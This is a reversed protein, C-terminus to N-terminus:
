EPQPFFLLIVVSGIYRLCFLWLKVFKSNLFSAAALARTKGWGWGMFLAILLGGAVLLFGDSTRQERM